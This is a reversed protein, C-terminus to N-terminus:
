DKYSFEPSNLLSWLIDEITSQRHADPRSFEAVLSQRQAETPLRAFTALYLEDIITAPDLDSKALRVCRGNESTIMYQLAPSNMLHLSQTVAWDRTRECPPDQNADPRGFADLFESETRTTWLQMARQGKGVGPFEHEVETVDGIADLLVEARLRQRYFRSFNRNDAYNTANPQSGLAYVQSLVITKILRKQDFQIEHFYDALAQLLAPNSPPNTARMDDVPDVLGVGFLDAWIRNVAVQAFYPNQKSVLWDVLLERPDDGSPVDVSSAKLPRPSLTEGTLPHAVSGSEKVFVIEEGGSIPPSLGVGKHGVRGFFAALGYFDSQGYVEFPHQHCKACDLRVGMFLQSTISVLEDPERRDRFLTAAGNKWTSGKATVLRRVFQNYPVNNQFSERLWGDLSRTAKIGVRYPNPRLLDCWKNAWFDAYEPRSLLSDILRERRDPAPDSLYNRAEDASPLRGIIDLFSRRLFQNENCPESPVIRLEQWRQSVLDDIFNRKLFSQYVHDAVPEPRPIASSWTAINGMYRAMITAEGPLEGAAVKGQGDVSLIAPENSQFACFRTVDRTSGDSYDARVVLQEQAKAAMSHPAPAISIRQLRPDESSTRAHGRRIWEVILQYEPSNPEIRQGGGHPLEGTAKQVFLSQQASSPLIRRGRSEQVISRYDMDADFGLLSLAFGNQGHQKGHCPGSNCGRATLLPQIDLEFKISGDKSVLVAPPNSNNTSTEKGPEGAWSSTTLQGISMLLFTLLLPFKLHKSREFM